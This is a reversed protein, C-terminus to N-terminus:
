GSVRQLSRRTVFPPCLAGWAHRMAARSACTRKEPDSRAGWPRSTPVEVSLPNMGMTLGLSIGGDIEPQYRQEIEAIGDRFADVWSSPTGAAVREAAEVGSYTNFKRYAHTLDDFCEHFIVVDTGEPLEAVAGTFTPFGHIKTPWAVQDRRFFRAQRELNISWGTGLITEGNLQTPRPLLYASVHSSPPCWRECSRSEERRCANTPTLSYSGTQRPPMSPSRAVQSVTVLMKSSSSLAGAARAIAVTADSSAMDAVVIDDVDPCSELAGALKGEENKTNIVLAIRGGGVPESSDPANDHVQRQRATSIRGTM